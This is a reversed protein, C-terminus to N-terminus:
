SALRGHVKFSYLCTYTPDGWNSEVCLNVYSSVPSGNDSVRFNQFSAGNRNYKFSGLKIGPSDPSEMGYVSFEKPAHPIDGTPSISKTIHGLTVSTVVVPHSLAVTLNGQQGAFAWCNGPQLESKGEIVVRARVARGSRGTLWGLGLIPNPKTKVNYPVSSSSCVVSAGASELAYNPVNAWLPAKNDKRILEEYSNLRAKLENFKKYFEEVLENSRGSIQRTLDSSAMGNTMQPIVLEWLILIVLILLPLLYSRALRLGAVGRRVPAPSVEVVPSESRQVNTKVSDMPARRLRPHARIRTWLKRYPTEKYSIVPVGDSSYYGSSELRSSKRIMGNECAGATEEWM